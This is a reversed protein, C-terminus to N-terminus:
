ITFLYSKMRRGLNAFREIIMLIGVSVLIIILVPSFEQKSLVDAGKGFLDKIYPIITNTIFVSEFMSAFDQRYYYFAGALLFIGPVIILLLQWLDFTSNPTVTKLQNEAQIKNMINDTFGEVKELWELDREEESKEKNIAM